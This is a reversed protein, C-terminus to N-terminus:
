IKGLLIAVTKFIKWHIITAKVVLLFEEFSYHIVALTRKLPSIKNFKLSFLSSM